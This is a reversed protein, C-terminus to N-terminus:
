ALLQKLERFTEGHVRAAAELGRTLGALETGVPGDLTAAGADVRGLASVAEAMRALGQAALESARRLASRASGAQEEGAVETTWILSSRIVDATRILRDTERATDCAARILDHVSERLRAPDGQAVVAAELPRAIRLLDVLRSRAPGPELAVVTSAVDARLGGPLVDDGPALLPRRMSLHALLLLVAAFLPSAWLFAPEAITGTVTGAALVCALMAYFRSPIARWARGAPVGRAAIGFADLAELVRAGAASPVAVLPRGERLAAQTEARDSSPGLVSAVLDGADKERVVILTRGRARTALCALCLGTGLPDAADCLACSCTVDTTM